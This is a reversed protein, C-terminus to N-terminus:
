DPISATIHDIVDDLNDFYNVKWPDHDCSSKLEFLPAHNKVVMSLVHNFVRLSEEDEIDDSMFGPRLTVYVQRREPNEDISFEKNDFYEGLGRAVDIFVRSTNMVMYDYIHLDSRRPAGGYKDAENIKTTVKTIKM